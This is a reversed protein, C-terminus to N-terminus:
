MSPLDRDVDGRGVEDYDLRGTSSSALGVDKAQHPKEVLDSAQAQNEHSSSRTRTPSVIDRRWPVQPM